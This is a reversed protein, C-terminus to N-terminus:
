VIEWSIMMNNHWSGLDYFTSEKLDKVLPNQVGFAIM